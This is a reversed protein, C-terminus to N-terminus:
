LAEAWVRFSYSEMLLPRRYSAWPLLGFRPEVPGGLIHHGKRVGVEERLVALGPFPANVAAPSVELGCFRQVGLLAVASAKSQSGRQVARVARLNIGGLPGVHEPVIKKQVEEEQEKTLEQVAGGCPTRYLWQCTVGDWLATAGRDFAM